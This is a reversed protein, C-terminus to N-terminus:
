NIAVWCKNFERGSNHITIRYYADRPPYWIVACVDNGAAKTNEVGKGPESRGILNGKEDHIELVVPVIPKHDGVVIVCARRGGRFKLHDGLVIGESGLPTAKSIVLKDKAEVRVYLGIHGRVPSAKLDPGFLLGAPILLLALARKM